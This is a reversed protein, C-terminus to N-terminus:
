SSAKRPVAPAVYSSEWSARLPKSLGLHVLSCTLGGGALFPMMWPARCSSSERGKRNKEEKLAM